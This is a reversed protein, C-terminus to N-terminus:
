EEGKEKRSGGQSADVFGMLTNFLDDKHYAMEESIGGLSLGVRFDEWWQHWKGWINSFVSAFKPATTVSVLPKGGHMVPTICVPSATQDWHIIQFAAMTALLNDFTGGVSVPNQRFRNMVKQREAVEYVLSLTHLTTDMWGKAFWDNADVCMNPTIVSVFGTDRNFIHTVSEVEIPGYMDTIHDRVM